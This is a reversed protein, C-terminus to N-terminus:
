DLLGQELLITGLPHQIKSMQIGRRSWITLWGIIMMRPGMMTVTGREPLTRYIRMATAEVAM